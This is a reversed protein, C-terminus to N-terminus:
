KQKIKIGKTKFWLANYLIAVAIIFLFITIMIEGYSFGGYFSATSTNSTSNNGTDNYIIQTTTTLYKLTSTCDGSQLYGFVSTQYECRQSITTNYPITATANIIM